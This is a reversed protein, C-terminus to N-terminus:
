CEKKWRDIALERSPMSLSEHGCNACEVWWAETIEPSVQHHIKYKFENCKSCCMKNTWAKHEEIEELFVVKM